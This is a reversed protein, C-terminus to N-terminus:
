PKRALQTILKKKNDVNLVEYMCRFIRHSPSGQFDKSSFMAESEGSSLRWVPASRKLQSM